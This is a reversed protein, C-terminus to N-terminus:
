KVPQTLAQFTPCCWRYPIGRMGWIDNYNLAAAKVQFVVENPKPKPEEVDKVQLIRKFDDDPAYEEYVVAKM